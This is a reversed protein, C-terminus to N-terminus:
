AFLNSLNNLTNRGGTEAAADLEALLNDAAAGGSEHELEVEGLEIGLAKLSERLQHLNAGLQEAAEKREVRLKASVVGNRSEVKLMLRGLEAPALQMTINNVGGKTAMKMAESLRQINEMQEVMSSVNGTHATQVTATQGAHQSNPQAFAAALRQQMDRDSSQLADELNKFFESFAKTKEDDSGFFGGGRKESEDM